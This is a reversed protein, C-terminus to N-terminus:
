NTIEHNCVHCVSTDNTIDAGCSSCLVINENIKNDTNNPTSETKQIPKATSQANKSVIRKSANITKEIGNVKENTDGIAYMLLLAVYAVFIIFAASIIGSFIVAISESFIGLFFFVIASIIAFIVEIIFLVKALKKIKEGVKDINLM